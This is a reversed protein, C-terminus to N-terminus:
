LLTVHYENYELALYLVQEKVAINRAVFEALKSKRAKPAGALKTFGPPIWEHLWEREEIELALWDSIHM